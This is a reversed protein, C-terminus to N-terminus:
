FKVLLLSNTIDKVIGGFISKDLLFMNTNVLKFGERWIWKIKKWKKIFLDEKETEIELSWM